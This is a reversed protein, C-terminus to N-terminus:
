KEELYEKLQGRIEKEDFDTEYFRILTFILLLLGYSNVLPFTGVVVGNHFISLHLDRTGDDYWFAIEIKDDIGVFFTTLSGTRRLESVKSMPIKLDTIRM